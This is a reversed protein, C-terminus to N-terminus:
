PTQTQVALTSAVKAAKWGTAWAEHFNRQRLPNHPNTGLSIGDRYAQEGKLAEQEVRREEGVKGLIAGVSVRRGRGVCAIVETSALGSKGNNKM